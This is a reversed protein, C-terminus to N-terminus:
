FCKKILLNLINWPLLICKIRSTLKKMESLMQLEKQSFNINKKKLLVLKLDEYTNLFETYTKGKILAIMLVCSATSITCGSGTFSINIIKNKKVEIYITFTDGCLANYGKLKYNATKLIYKNQICKSYDFITQNYLTELNM